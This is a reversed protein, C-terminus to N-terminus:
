SSAKNEQDTSLDWKEFTIQAGESFRSGQDTRSFLRHLSRYGKQVHILISIQLGESVENGQDSSKNIESRYGMHVTM